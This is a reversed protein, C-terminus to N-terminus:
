VMRLSSVNIPCSAELCYPFDTETSYTPRYRPKCLCCHYLGARISSRSASWAGLALRSLDSYNINFALPYPYDGSIYIRQRENVNTTVEVDEEKIEPGDLTPPLKETERNEALSLNLLPTIIISSDIATESGETVPQSDATTQIDPLGSSSGPPQEAEMTTPLPPYYNNVSVLPPVFPYPPTLFFPWHM